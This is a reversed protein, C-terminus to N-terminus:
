RKGYYLEPNTRVVKDMKLQFDQSYYKRPDTRRINDFYEKTGEVGKRDGQSFNLSNKSGGEDVTTNNTVEGGVFLAIFQDPDVSALEMYVANLKESSAKSRYVDVAKDGFKEKLMKDAKALNAQRQKNNDLGTVTQEVLKQLESVSLSENKPKDAQVTNQQQQLRELITDLTAETNAKGRLEHNEKKLTEIFDDASMYAKALDNVDKYKKGEGVLISVLDQEAQTPQQEVTQDGSFVTTDTV